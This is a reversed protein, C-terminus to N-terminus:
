ALPRYLREDYLAGQLPGLRRRFDGTHVAAVHADFASRSAWGEWLTMHNARSAQQLVDFVLVGPERRSDEALRLVLAIAPDKQPPVVDVHTLVYVARGPEGAAAPPALSLGLSPRADFPGTLLPELNKQFAEAAAAHAELAARDHWAAVIAFRGARAIEALGACLENGAAQRAAAAFDRLAVEVAAMAAPAVEFYTVLYESM